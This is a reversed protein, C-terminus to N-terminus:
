GGKPPPCASCVRDFASRRSISISISSSAADSSPSGHFHFYPTTDAM